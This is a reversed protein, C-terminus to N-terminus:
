PMEVDTEPSVNALATGSGAAATVNSVPKAASETYARRRRPQGRATAQDRTQAVDSNFGGLGDLDFGFGVVLGGARVGAAPFWRCWRGRRLMRPTTTEPRSIPTM